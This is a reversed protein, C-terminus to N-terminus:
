RGSPEQRFSTRIAVPCATAFLYQDNRTKERKKRNLLEFLDLLDPRPSGLGTFPEFPLGPIRVPPDRKLFPHSHEGQASQLDFSFQLLLASM